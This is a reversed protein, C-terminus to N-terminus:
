QIKGKFVELQERLDRNEEELARIHQLAREYEERMLGLGVLIKEGIEKASM